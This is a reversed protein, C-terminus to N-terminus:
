LRPEDDPKERPHTPRPKEESSTEPSKVPPPASGHGAPPKPHGTGAGKAGSPAEPRSEPRGEGRSAGAPHPATKAAPKTGSLRARGFMSKLASHGSLTPEESASMSTSPNATAGVPRSSITSIPQQCKPCTHFEAICHQCVPAGCQHHISAIGGCGVCRAATAHAAPLTWTGDPPEVEETAEAAEAQPAEAPNEPAFFEEGPPETPAASASGSSRFEPSYAGLDLSPIPAHVAGGAAEVAKILRAKLLGVKLTRVLQFLTRQGPPLLLARRALEEVDPTLRLNEGRLPAELVAKVYGFLRQLQELSTHTPSLVAVDALTFGRREIGEPRRELAATILHYSASELDHMDAESLHDIDIRPNRSLASLVPELLDFPVHLTVFLDNKTVNRNLKAELLLADRGFKEVQVERTRQLALKKGEKAAEFDSDLALSREFSARADDPRGLALLALGRRCWADKNAPAVQTAHEYLALAENPHGLKETVFGARMMWEPNTGDLAIAHAFANAAEPWAERATHLEGLRVWLGASKPLSEVGRQVVQVAEPLHGLGAEAEALLLFLADQAPLQPIAGSLFEKAEGHKGQDLLSRAIGAIAVPSRPERARVEEYVQLAENGRELATLIEARLLLVNVSRNASETTQGLAEDLVELALDPRGASLRLRARRAAIESRQAPDLRAAKEYAKHADEPHGLSAALDGLRLWLAPDQSEAGGVALLQDLAAYADSTEGNEAHLRFKELLAPANHPDLLLIARLSYQVEGAHGLARYADARSRWALLDNPDEKLVGDVIPIAENHRGALALTEALALRGPRSKADLALGERYYEVADAYAGQERLAEAVEFQVHADKESGEVASKLIQLGEARRGAKILLQGKRRLFLANKPERQVLLDIFRMAKAEQNLLSLAEVEGWLLDSDDLGLELAREYVASAETLRGVDRLVHGEEKLIDGRDSNGPQALFDTYARIARDSDDVLHSARAIGLLSQSAFAPDLSAREYAVLATRAAESRPASGEAADFARALYLNGRKVAIDSRTPDRRFLEDFVPALRETANLESLLRKEEFLYRNETPKLTALKAYAAIAGERDGKGDLAHALEELALPNEPREHLLARAFEEVLDARGADRAADVARELEAVNHPHALVIQRFMAFAEETRGDELEMEALSRMGDLNDPSTELIARSATIGLDIRHQDRALSRLAQLNALNRPDATMLRERAALVLAPDRGDHRALEAVEALVAADPTPESALLATLVARGEESRGLALLLRGQQLASRTPDAGAAKAHGLTTLAEEAEGLQTLIEARAMLLQADSPTANLLADCAELAQKNGGHITALQLKMRLAVPDQPVLKLAREVYQMSTVDLQQAKLYAEAAEAPRGLLKLADGRTAWISKDHPNGSAARDLLPLVEELNRNRAILILAKHHLLASSGPAFSLGLDAARQALGADSQRHFAIAVDDLHKAVEAASGELEARRSEVYAVYAKLAELYRARDPRGELESVTRFRHRAEEVATPGSPAHPATKDVM